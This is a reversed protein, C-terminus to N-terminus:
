RAIEAVDPWGLKAFLAEPSDAYEYVEGCEGYWESGSRWFARGDHHEQEDPGRGITRQWGNLPADFPPLDPIMAVAEHMTAAQVSVDGFRAHALGGFFWAEAVTSGRRNLVRWGGACQIWRTPSVAAVMSLADRLRREISTVDGGIKDFTDSIHRGTRYTNCDYRGTM